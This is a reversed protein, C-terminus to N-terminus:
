TEDPGSSGTVDHLEAGRGNLSGTVSSTAVRIEETTEIVGKIAWIDFGNLVNDQDINVDIPTKKTLISGPIIIDIPGQLPSLPTGSVTLQMTKNDNDYVCSVEIGEPVNWFMERFDYDIPFPDLTNGEIIVDFDVEEIEEGVTGTIQPEGDIYASPPPDPPPTLEVPEGLGLARRTDDPVIAWEEPSYTSYTNAPPGGGAWGPKNFTGALVGHIHTFIPTEHVFPSDHSQMFFCGLMISQGRYNVTKGDAFYYQPMCWKTNNVDPRGDFASNLGGGTMMYFASNSIFIGDVNYQVNIQPTYFECWNIQTPITWNDASIYLIGGVRIQTITEQMIVNGSNDFLPNLQSGSTFTLNASETYIGKLNPCRVIGSITLGERADIYELNPYTGGNLTVAAGPRWYTTDQQPSGGGYQYGATPPSPLFWARDNWRIAATALKEDIMEEIAAAAAVGYDEYINSGNDLTPDYIPVIGTPPSGGTGTGPDPPPETINWVAEGNRTANLPKESELVDGPITIRVPGQKADEMPSTGGVIFRLTNGTIGDFDLRVNDPIDHLIGDTALYDEDLIDEADEKLSDGSITIVLDYNGLVAGKYGSIEVDELTAMRGPTSGGSTAAMTAVDVGISFELAVNTNVEVVRGGSRAVIKFNPNALYVALELYSLNGDDDETYNEADFLGAVTAVGFRLLDGHDLTEGIKHAFVGDESTLWLETLDVARGNFGPSASGPPYSEVTAEIDGYVVGLSAIISELSAEIDPDAAIEDIDAPDNFYPVSVVTEVLVGSTTGDAGATSVERLLLQAALQAASEAAYYYSDAEGVTRSQVVMYQGVTLLGTGLILMFTMFVLVLGLASGRRLLDRPISDAFRRYFAAIIALLKGL